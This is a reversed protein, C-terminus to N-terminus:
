NGPNVAISVDGNTLKMSQLGPLTQTAVAGSSIGAGSLTVSGGRLTQSTFGNFVTITGPSNSSIILGQPTNPIEIKTVGNSITVTNGSSSKSGTTGGAPPNNGTATRGPHTNGVPDNAGVGCEPTPVTIHECGKKKKKAYKDKKKKDHLVGKANVPQGSIVFQPTASSNEANHDHRQKANATNM